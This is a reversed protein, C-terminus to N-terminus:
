GKEEAHRKSHSGVSDMMMRMKTRISQVVCKSAGKTTIRVTKMLRMMRMPLLSSPESCRQVRGTPEIHDVLAAAGPPSERTDDRIARLAEAATIGAIAQKRVSLSQGEQVKASHM